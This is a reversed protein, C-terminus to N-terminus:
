HLPFSIMSFSAQNTMPTWLPVVSDLQTFSAWRTGNTEVSGFPLATKILEAICDCPEMSVCGTGGM